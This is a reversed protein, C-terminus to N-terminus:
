ADEKFALSSRVDDYSIAKEEDNVRFELFYNEEGDVVRQVIKMTMLMELAVDEYVHAQIRDSFLRWCLNELLLHIGNYFGLKTFADDYFDSKPRLRGELHKLREEEEKTMIVFGYRSM